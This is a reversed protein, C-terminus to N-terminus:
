YKKEGAEIFARLRNQPPPLPCTSYDTFACPPNYAKNFNIKTTTEGEKPKDAYLFRGPGYTTRGSTRDAFIIYYSDGADLVDLSYTEGDINFQLKGPSQDKSILGLVNVIEVEKAPQYPIFEADIYFKESVPFYEVGRFELLTKAQSDKIRLAPKGREIVYFQFTDVTFITPSGSSDMKVEIKETVPNDNAKIDVDIAPKFTIQNGDLNFVGINEPGHLLVIKNDASAGISNEGKYLWEMGVLSVWGHPKRLSESRAQKWDELDKQWNEAAFASLSSLFLCAIMIMKM